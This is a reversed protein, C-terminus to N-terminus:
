IVFVSFSLGDFEIFENSANFYRKASYYYEGQLTKGSGLELIKKNQINQAFQKVKQDNYRRIGFILNALIGFILNALIRFFNKM